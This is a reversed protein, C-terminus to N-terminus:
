SDTVLRITAARLAPTTGQRFGQCVPAPMGMLATEIPFTVLQEVESPAMAPCEAIVNVQNNTLDPFAEVPIRLMAWLGAAVLLVLGAVVVLRQKLHFSIIRELM